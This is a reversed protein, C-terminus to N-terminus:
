PKVTYTFATVPRVVSSGNKGGGGYLNGHGFGVGWALGSYGETASWYVANSPYVFPVVKGQTKKMINAFLPTRAVTPPNDNAYDASIKGGNAMTIGGCSMLTYAYIRALIGCTPLMWKGKAYWDVCGNKANPEYLYCSMAAPVYIQRYRTPSTVGEETMKAVLSQM